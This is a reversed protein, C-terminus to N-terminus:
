TSLARVRTVPVPQDRTGVPYRWSYSRRRESLRRGSSRPPRRLLRQRIQPAARGIKPRGADLAVHEIPAVPSSIKTSTSSILQSRAPRRSLKVDRHCGPRDRPYPALLLSAIANETPMPSALSHMQTTRVAVSSRTRAYKGWVRRKESSLGTDPRSEPWTKGCTDVLRQLTRSKKLSPSLTHAGM